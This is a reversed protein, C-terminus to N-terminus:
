LPQPRKYLDPDITRPFCARGPGHSWNQSQGYPDHYISEGGLPVAKLLRPAYGADQYNSDTKFDACLEFALASRVTYEYPQQTEPDLPPTYGSINDKLDDLKAPLRNKNQWYNITQYQISQLDSVRREDFRRARQTAPSGVIFFGAIIAAIVALTAAAAVTRQKGAMVTQRKIDWLYYAFVAAAIILVTLTKLFFRTTLEGSYFNYVLTVLDVTITVASIFLTLYVLWKRVKIERREPAAIYERSLLWFLIVFVPFVVILAASSLRIQNLSCSYCIGLQDPYLVDIYAFLLAIFSVVSAYLMVTVLLYMFFDRPTSKPIINTNEM